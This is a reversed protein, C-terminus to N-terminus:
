KLDRLQSILKRYAIAGQQLEFFSIRENPKHAYKLSGPGMLIPKGVEKLYPADSGFGALFSSFGEPLFYDFPDTVSKVELNVGKTLHKRIIDIIINSECGIRMIGRAYAMEALINRMSGGHIEGVNILTESFRQHSPWSYHVLRYISDILNHIASEGLEPMSSHAEKGCAVLDFVLSGKQAYAAKLETPEGVVLFDARNQLIPGVAKAGDSADEEGVTFLLAVDDFGLAQQELVAFIMSAAIGKADCAGRGWLFSDDLCPAIFPAVTDLHTCLIAKYRHRNKIYAFINFRNESVAIKEHSLGREILWACLYNMVGLEDGTISPIQCLEFALKKMDSFQDINTNCEM